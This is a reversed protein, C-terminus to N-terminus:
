EDCASLLLRERYVQIAVQEPSVKTTLSLGTLREFRPQWDPADDSAAALGLATTVPVLSAVASQAIAACFEQRWKRDPVTAAEAMPLPKEVRERGKELVMALLAPAAFVGATTVSKDALEKAARVAAEIPPLSAFPKGIDVSWGSTVWWYVRMESELMRLYELIINDNQASALANVEAYNALERLASEAHQLGSGPQQRAVPQSLNELAQQFAVPQVKYKRNDPVKNGLSQAAALANEGKALLQDDAIAPRIGGFSATVLCLALYDKFDNETEFCCAITSAALLSAERDQPSVDFTPDKESFFSWFGEDLDVDKLGLACGVLGPVHEASVGQSAALVGQGRAEILSPQTALGLKGYLVGMRKVAEM